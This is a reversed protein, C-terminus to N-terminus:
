DNYNNQQSCQIAKVTRCVTDVSIVATTLVDLVTPDLDKQRVIKGDGNPLYYVTETTGIELQKKLSNRAPLVMKEGNYEFEYLPYFRRGEICNGVVRGNIKKARIQFALKKTSKYLLIASNIMNLAPILYKDSFKAIKKLNKDEFFCM